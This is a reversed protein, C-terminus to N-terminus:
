CTASTEREGLYARNIRNLDVTFFNGIVADGVVREIQQRNTHQLAFNDSQDVNSVSEIKIEKLDFLPSKIMSLVLFYAVSLVAGTLILNALLNLAKYNNWM